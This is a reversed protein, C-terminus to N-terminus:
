DIATALIAQPYRPESLIALVCGLIAGSGTSETFKFAVHDYNTGAAAVVQADVEIIYVGGKKSATMAFGSTTATTLASSVDSGAAPTVAAIQTRYKFVIATACSANSVGALITITSDSNASSAGTAVIFTCKRYNKMNVIDSTATAAATAVPDIVNVIKIKESLVNM